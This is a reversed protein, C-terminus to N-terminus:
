GLRAIVAAVTRASDSWRLGAAHRVGAELLRTRLQQDDLLRALQGALSDSDDPDCFLASGAFIEPLAGAEAVLVPCGCAQAELPPLGFGEFRSPYIFARARRYLFNLQRDDLPGTFVINESTGTTEPLRRFIKRNGDGVIVLRLNRRGLRHFAAILRGLNKRPELSGVTLVFPSEGIKMMAAQGEDDPPSLFHDDVANSIVSIKDRDLDLHAALTAASFRSVTFIHRARRALRPITLNYYLAFRRTFFEPYLRFALDHITIFNNDYRLPAQNAPNFLPPRGNKQLWNPLDIQEWLIDAPLGTKEYFSFNRRGIIKIALEQALQRNYIKPPALFCTDPRLKKLERCLNGAFRQPGRTAQCLFRSNVTIRM